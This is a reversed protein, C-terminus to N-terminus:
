PFQKFNNYPNKNVKNIKSKKQISTKIKCKYIITLWNVKNKFKIRLM